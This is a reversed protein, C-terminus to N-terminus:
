APPNIVLSPSVHVAFVIETPDPAGRRMTAILTSAESRESEPTTQQNAVTAARESAIYSARYSLHYNL